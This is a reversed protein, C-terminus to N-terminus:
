KKPKLVEYLYSEDDIDSLLLKLDNEYGHGQEHCIILIQNFNSFDKKIFDSESEKSILAALYGKEYTPVNPNPILLKKGNSYWVVCPHFCVDYSLTPGENSENKFVLTFYM